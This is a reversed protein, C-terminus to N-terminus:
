FRRRIREVGKQTDESALRERISPWEREFEEDTGEYRGRAQAKLVAEDTGGELDTGASEAQLGPQSRERAEANSRRAQERAADLHADRTDGREKRNRQVSEIEDRPQESEM